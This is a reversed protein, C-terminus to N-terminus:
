VVLAISARLALSRRATLALPCKGLEGGRLFHRDSLELVKGIALLMENELQATGVEALLGLLEALILPLQGEFVELDSSGLGLFGDVPLAARRDPHSPANGRWFQEGTSHQQRM